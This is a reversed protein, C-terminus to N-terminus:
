LTDRVVGLSQLAWPLAPTRRPGKVDSQRSSCGHGHLTMLLFLRGPTYGGWLASFHRGVKPRNQHMKPIMRSETSDQFGQELGLLARRPGPAPVAVTGHPTPGERKRLVALWHRLESVWPGGEM